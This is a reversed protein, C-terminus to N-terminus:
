GVLCVGFVILSYVVIPGMVVGNSPVAYAQLMQAASRMSDSSGRWLGAMPSARLWCM